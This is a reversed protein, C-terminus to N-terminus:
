ACTQGAPKITLPIGSVMLVVENALEALRQNARGALDSFQRALPNDPVIGSGVENTVFILSTPIRAVWNELTEVEHQVGAEGRELLLNSLWVTVCDILVCDLPDRRRQLVGPVELPEEITQWAHARRKRHEEIRRAMEADIRQATAVYLLRSGLALARKEAYASKGSRAGGTVLLVKKM